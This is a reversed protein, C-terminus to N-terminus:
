AKPDPEPPVTAAVRALNELWVQHVRLMMPKVHFAALTAIGRQTEETTVHTGAPTPDLRWAHHAKILPSVATWALYTSPEFDTVRTALAVGNTSWHFTSGPQLDAAGDDLRVNKCHPYWAPWLPARILWSWLREPAAGITLDNSVHIRARAPSMDDPWRFAPM